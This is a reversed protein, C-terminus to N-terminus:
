AGLRARLFRARACYRSSKAGQQVVGNGSFLPGDFEPTPTREARRAENSILEAGLQSALSAVIEDQM